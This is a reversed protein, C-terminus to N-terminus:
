GACIRNRGTEKAKYLAKDAKEIILQPHAADDPFTSIGISVTVKLNEDYARIESFAIAQRIREAAFCAQAKDTEALIISLEEGGYRGMFDIQRINDKITQTVERLIADGVLHGYHDNFEKFHDVDLMLFSFKLNFKKSRSFEENFRELFHRRNFIQTLSDTISIEQFKKYLLARKIGSLFQQALIHFKDKDENRVGSALLHGITQRNIVLPLVTYGKYGSLDEKDQAKIFKCEGIEIYRNIHETLIDFIRDEDLTRSIDKTIDFLAITEEVSKSQNLNYAKLRENEKVLNGYETEMQKLVQVKGMLGRALVRKLLISLVAILTGFVFINTILMGPVTM